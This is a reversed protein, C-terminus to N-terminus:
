IFVVVAIILGAPMIAPYSWRRTAVLLIIAFAFGPLWHLLVTTEGVMSTLLDLLGSGTMIQASGEVLLWGTGALFGGIVPFPLYQVLSGVKFQALLFMVCGSLLAIMALATFLTVFMTHSSAGSIGSAISGVVVASVATAASAPGVVSGLFIGAMLCVARLVIGSLLSVGVGVALFETLSGSFILAGYCVYTVAGLLGSILGAFTDRAVNATPTAGSTDHIREM